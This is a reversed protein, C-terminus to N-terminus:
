PSLSRNGGAHGPPTPTPVRMARKIMRWLSQDETDLSEHTASWQDNRWENNQRTVSRQLRKFEATLAPDKTVQWRRLRIKLRIVDQIGAQISFLPDDRPRCKPTFAAPTNLVTSSFKEVFM